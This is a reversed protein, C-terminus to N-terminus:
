VNERAKLAEAEEILYETIDVEQMIKEAEDLASIIAQTLFERKTLNLTNLTNELREVIDLPIPACLNKFQKALEPKEAILSDGFAGTLHGSLKFSLARHTIIETFYKNM